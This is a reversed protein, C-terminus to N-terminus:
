VVLVNNRYIDKKGSIQPAIKAMTQAAKAEPV